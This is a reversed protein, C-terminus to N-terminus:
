ALPQVLSHRVGDEGSERGKGEMERENKGKSSPQHWRNNVIKGLNYWGSSDCGFLFSKKETPRNRSHASHRLMLLV